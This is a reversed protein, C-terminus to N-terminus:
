GIIKLVVYNPAGFIAIAHQGAINCITHSYQYTFDACCVIDVYYGTAHTRIMNMKKDRHRGVQRKRLQHLVYFSFAAALYHHLEFMQALTIPTLMNPPSAVKCNGDAIQIFSLYLLINLILLLVM